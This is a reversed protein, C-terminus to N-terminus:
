KGRTVPRKKMRLPSGCVPCTEGDPFTRGCGTCQKEWVVSARSKKQRLATARIGLARALNQVAYDDTLLAVDKGAEKEQLALALLDGDAKSIRKDDGTGRAAESVRGAYSADPEVVRLGEMLELRIRSREDKVEAYVAPVTEMEGGPLMWYIFASTDLVYTTAM